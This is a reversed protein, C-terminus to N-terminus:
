ELLFKIALENFEDSHEIHSCHQSNKFMKVQNNPILASMKEAYDPFKLPDHDGACILVPVKINKYEQSYEPPGSDETKHQPSKLGAAALAEWHGEILSAKYRKEVYEDALWKEDFFMLEHLKRMYEFTCDYKNAIKHAEPNNPGGGSVTIIKKINWLPKEMSAVRLITGGGYSNGIFHAEDIYLTELFRTIHHIRFFVPDGFNFIKDTEGYGIMDLAYVHFGADALAGINYEWSNRATAGFEASHILVVNNDGEGAELYHTKINDVQVYKSQIISMM